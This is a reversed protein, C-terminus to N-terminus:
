QLPVKEPINIKKLTNINPYIIDKFSKCHSKTNIFTSVNKNKIPFSLFKDHM